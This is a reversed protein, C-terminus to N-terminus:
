INKRLALIYGLHIGEHFNNFHMADEISKLVFGTSTAYENYNTFLKEKIAIETHDITSFLLEKLHDVEEQSAPRETKTGKKYAAVMEDDIQMSQGSLKYFLLQQTVVVHAINWFINNKFGDPVKNLQELSYGELFKLLTRRNVKTIELPHQM